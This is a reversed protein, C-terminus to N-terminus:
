SLDFTWVMVVALFTSSRYILYCALSDCHLVSCYVVAHILWLSSLKVSLSLNLQM